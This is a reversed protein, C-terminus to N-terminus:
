GRQLLNKMCGEVHQSNKIKLSKIGVQVDMPSRGHLHGAFLVGEGIFALIASAYDLNPPLPQGLEILLEIFANLLFLSFMTVHQANGLHAFRWEEDFGTIIEAACLHFPM